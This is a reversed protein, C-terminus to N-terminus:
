NRARPRAAGHLYYAFATLAAAIVAIILFLLWDRGETFQLAWPGRKLEHAHLLPSYKWDLYLGHDAFINMKRAHAADRHYHYFSFIEGFSLYAQHAFCLFMGGAAALRNRTSEFFGSRRVDRLAFGLPLLLFPLVVLMHRPGLCFGGHWESRMAIFFLRTVVMGLLLWSLMRLRRHLRGWFLLAAFLIPNFLLVGKGGSFLLGFLGARPDTWHGHHPSGPLALTRGTELPNGFREFNYWGYLALLPLLGLLFFGSGAPNTNRDDERGASDHKPGAHERFIAPAFAAALFFPAFFLTSVHALVACGLAAGSLLYARPSSLTSVTASAPLLCHFAVLSFFLAPVESFLTGSYPWLATAFAFLLALLNAAPEDKLLRMATLRFIWVCALAMLVNVFAAMTRTASGMPDAANRGTMFSRLNGRHYHSPPTAGRSLADTLGTGRGLLIAGAVMVSQLPGFVPYLKGDRGKELGFGPWGELPRAPAFGEGRALSAGSRFMVEADPSRIGCYASFGHVTATLLFLLIVPRNPM